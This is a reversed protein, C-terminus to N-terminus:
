LSRLAYVHSGNKATSFIDTKFSQKFTPNIATFISNINSPSTTTSLKESASSDSSSETESRNQSNRRKQFSKKKRIKDEQSEPDGSTENDAASTSTEKFSKLYDKELNEDPIKTRENQKENRELWDNVKNEVVFSTGIFKPRESKSKRGPPIPEEAM